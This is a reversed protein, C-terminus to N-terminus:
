SDRSIGALVMVRARNISDSVSNRSRLKLAAAAQGLRVAQMLSFGSVLGCVLGAVAADGAGTVDAVETVHMAPIVAPPAEGDSVIAGGGGCHVIVNAFGLDHLRAIASNTDDVGTLAALQQRNPTIAFVPERRQFDLLKRAKAVSIPDIVLLRGHASSFQSLWRLCEVPINCDAVLMDASQLRETHAELYAVSLADAARMDNIAAVMEGDRDLIALYTGTPAACTELMSVDVGAATSAQRLFRGNADDGVFATLAADVGLRALNEAINRGVGGAAVTVEGINSTAPILAGHPRGKIDVNAGGIVIVQPM